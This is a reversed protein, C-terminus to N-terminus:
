SVDEEKLEVRLQALGRHVRAKLTGEAEDLVESMEAYSLGVVHRLVVSLRAPPSLAFLGEILQARLLGNEM